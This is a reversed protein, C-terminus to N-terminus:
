GGYFASIILVSDGEVLERDARNGAAVVNGNVATAVGAPSISRMELLKEVTTGAPVEVATNNVNIKM